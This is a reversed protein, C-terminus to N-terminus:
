NNIEDFHVHRPSPIDVETACLQKKSEVIQARLLFFYNISDGIKEDWQADSYDEGSAVMDSVSVLHKVLFGWLAQEPTGGILASAVQFNHLRDDDTAYERAKTVLVERAQEVGREFIAEFEEQNV